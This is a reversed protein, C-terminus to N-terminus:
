PTLQLCNSHIERFRPLSADCMEQGHLVAVHANRDDLHEIGNQISGLLPALPPILHLAEEPSRM